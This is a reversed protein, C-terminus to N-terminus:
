QSTRRSNTTKPKRQKEEEFVLQSLMFIRAVHYRVYRRHAVIGGRRQIDAFVSICRLPAPTRKTVMGTRIRCSALPECVLPSRGVVAQRHRQRRFINVGDVRHNSPDHPSSPTQEVALHVQRHIGDGAVM